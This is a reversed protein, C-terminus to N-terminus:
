KAGARIWEEILKKEAATLQAKETIPPMRKPDTKPLAFQKLLLSEDPKGPIIVAGSEGGKLASKLNRLSLGKQKLLLGHCKTCKAKFVAGVEKKFTPAASIATPSSVGAFFFLAFLHRKM